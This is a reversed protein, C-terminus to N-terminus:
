TSLGKVWADIDSPMGIAFETEGDQNRYFLVPAADRGVLDRILKTNASVRAAAKAPDAGKPIVPSTGLETGFWRSLASSPDTATLMEAGVALSDEQEIAVPVWEVQLEGAEVRKALAAYLNHCHRCYPDFSIFVKPSDAVGSPSISATGRALLAFVDREIRADYHPRVLFGVNFAAILALGLVLRRGLQSTSRQSDM